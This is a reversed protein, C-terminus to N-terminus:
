ELVTIRLDDFHTVSDAKTWLGVQGAGTFTTDEVEFLQQGDLEVKFLSGKAVVRLWSWSQSPVRAKKGYAFPGSGKADLDSRKGDQVKYLVVNGELANARVVYYNDKDRYRWVLGAARDVTGQVPKFRVSVDVDRASLGDLLCVPFRYSTADADIQGLISPRSPATADELVKWDGPRGNGTLVCTFGDPPQGNKQQDFGVVRVPRQPAEGRLGAALFAIAITPWFTV